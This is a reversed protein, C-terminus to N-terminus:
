PAAFYLEDIYHKTNEAKLKEFILAFKEELEKMISEKAEEPLNWLEKKFPGLARKRTKYIGQEETLDAKWEYQGRFNEVCYQFIREKLGKPLHKYIINQFETALHIEGCDTEPFKDFLEIPLTSAGHQVVIKGFDRAKKACSSLADFDIKVEVLKGDPGVVGGHTTGTQISIKSLDPYGAPLQAKVERSFEEVEEPTSNRGGVGGVEGGVTITPCNMEKERERILKVFLSTVRFNHEQQESLTAKNLEVLTSADIDINYVGATMAKLVLNKLENLEEMRKAESEFYKKANVQFHDAQIFVPGRHKEALAAALIVTAYEDIPQNTYGIESRAIEFIVPGANLKQMLRFLLRAVDFTLTRINVAPVTFGGFRGGIMDQYLKFTSDPWIGVRAIRARIEKEALLDGEFVRRWVLEKIYSPGNKSM